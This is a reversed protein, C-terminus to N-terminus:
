EGDGYMSFAAWHNPRPYTVLADMQAAGPAEGVSMGKRLNRHFDAMIVSSAEDDIDWLTTVIAPTGAYLFARTLETIEDGRAAQIWGGARPTSM